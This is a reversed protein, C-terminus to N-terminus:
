TPMFISRSAMRSTITTCVSSVRPEQPVAVNKGPRAVAPDVLPGLPDFIATVFDNLWWPFYDGTDKESVKDGNVITTQSFSPSDITRRWKEPSVWYEEIQARYESTPNTTEVIAAKLHFPTSGPLTIQSHQNLTIAIDLWEDGRVPVSIALWLLVFIAFSRRM